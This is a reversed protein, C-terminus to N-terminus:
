GKNKDPSTKGSNNLHASKGSFLSNLHLSTEGKPRFLHAPNLYEKLDIVQIPRIKALM